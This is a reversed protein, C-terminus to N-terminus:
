PGPSVSSSSPMASPGADRPMPSFARLVSELVAPGLFLGLSIYVRALDPHPRLFLEQTLGASGIGM